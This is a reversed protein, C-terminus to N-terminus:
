KKEKEKKIYIPSSIPAASSRPRGARRRPSSITTGRPTESWPWTKRVIASSGRDQAIRSALRRSILPAPSLHLPDGGHQWIIPYFHHTSHPFQPARFAHMLKFQVSPCGRVKLVHTCHKNAIYTFPLWDTLQWASPLYVWKRHCQQVQGQIRIPAPPKHQPSVYITIHISLLRNRVCTVRIIDAVYALVAEQVLRSM